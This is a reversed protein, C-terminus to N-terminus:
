VEHSSSTMARAPSCFWLFNNNNGNDDDNGPNLRSKFEEQISNQNTLNTGLYKFEEV